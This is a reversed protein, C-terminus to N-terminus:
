LVINFTTILRQFISLSKYEYYIRRIMKVALIFITRDNIIKLNSKMFLQLMFLHTMTTSLLSFYKAGLHNIKTKSLSYSKNIRNSMFYTFLSHANELGLNIKCRILHLKWNIKSTVSVLRKLMDYVKKHKFSNFHHSLEHM